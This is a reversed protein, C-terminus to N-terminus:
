IPFIVSGCRASFVTLPGHDTEIERCATLEESLMDRHKARRAAESHLNAIRGIQGQPSM